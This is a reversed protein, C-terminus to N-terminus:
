RATLPFGLQQRQEVWSLPLKRTLKQFTLDTPQRGELIAEVIDPALFACELIRGVYRETLGLRKAIGRKSSVEGTVIWEHWQRGRAVAKLLSSVPPLPEHGDSDPPVVLRMEGGHRRLQAKVELRILDESLEAEDPLNTSDLRNGILEARLAKKRIEVELRDSHVVVRRVVKTLFDKEIAESHKAAAGILKQTVGPSERPLSLEDMVTQNSQLFSQLRRM